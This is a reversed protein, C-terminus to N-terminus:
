HTPEHEISRDNTQNQQWKSAKGQKFPNKVIPQAAQDLRGQEMYAVQARVWAELEAIRAHNNAVQQNAESIQQQILGFAHWLVLCFVVLLVLLSGIWRPQWALAKM